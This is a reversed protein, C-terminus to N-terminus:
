LINNWLKSERRIFILYLFVTSFILVWIMVYLHTYTGTEFSCGMVTTIVHKETM